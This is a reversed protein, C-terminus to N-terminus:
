LAGRLHDALAEGARTLTRRPLVLFLPREIPFGAGDIRAVTGLELAKAAVEMSVIGLGMGGEVAGVIAENTGLEMVVKLEGPDVGGRRIVEEAAIRTGSGAERVIFPQEALDAFSLGARGAFRHGTPCILVLEDTGLREYHVRAGAVEAGTMGLDAEGRAVHEIVESSDYVRLTIGVEPYEHLFSGLLRPLLYQGPTTSAAISIRGSVTGALKDLSERAEELEALVHRAYPLLTRGAETLEVKRYGRDILTAGIDAELAQIQMTVAPQSVGLIRAAESFSRHDVVAIFTRLQSVNVPVEEVHTGTV